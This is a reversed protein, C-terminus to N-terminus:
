GQEMDEASLSDLAHGRTRIRFFRPITAEMVAHAFAGMEQETIEEGEPRNGFVDSWCRDIAARFELQRYTARILSSVAAMWTSGQPGDDPTFPPIQLVLDKPANRQELRQIPDVRYSLHVDRPLEAGVALDVVFNLRGYLSVLGRVHGDSATGSVRILHDLDTFSLAATTSADGIAVQYGEGHTVYRRVKDFASQLFLDRHHAAFLNCAMKAIARRADDGFTVDLQLGAEIRETHSTLMEDLRDLSVGHKKFHRRVLLRAEAPSRVTGSGELRGDVVRVRFEPAALTLKGGPEIHYRRGDTGPRNKLKPAPNGNGSLTGLLTRFVLLGEHLAADITRGFWSNTERDILGPVQWRGGLGNLLIHEATAHQIERDTFYIDKM